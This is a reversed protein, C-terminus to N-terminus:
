PKTLVNLKLPKPSANPVANSEHKLIISQFINASVILLPNIPMKLEILPNKLATSQCFIPFVSTSKM